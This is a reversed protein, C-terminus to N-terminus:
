KAIGSILNAAWAPMSVKAILGLAALILIIKVLGFLGSVGNTILAKKATDWFEKEARAAATRAKHYESHADIGDPFAILIGDVLSQMYAREQDAHTALAIEFDGFTLPDNANCCPKRRERGDRTM